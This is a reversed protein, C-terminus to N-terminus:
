LMHMKEMQTTSRNLRALGTLFVILKFVKSSKVSIHNSFQTKHRKYHESKELYKDRFVYTSCLLLVLFDFTQEKLTYSTSSSKFTFTIHKNLRSM